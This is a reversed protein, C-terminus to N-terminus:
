VILHTLLRDLDNRASEGMPQDPDLYTLDFYKQIIDSTLRQHLWWQFAGYRYHEPSAETGPEYYMLQIEFLEDPYMSWKIWENPFCMMSVFCEKSVKLGTKNKQEQVKNLFRVGRENPLPQPITM